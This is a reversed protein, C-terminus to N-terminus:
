TDTMLRTVAESAVGECRTEKGRTARRGKRISSLACSRAWAFAVGHYGTGDDTLCDIVAQCQKPDLGTASGIQTELSSMDEQDKPACCWALSFISLLSALALILAPAWWLVVWECVGDHLGGRPLCRRGFGCPAGGLACGGRQWSINPMSLRVRGVVAKWLPTGAAVDATANGANEPHIKADLPRNISPWENTANPAISAAAAELADSAAASQAFESHAVEVEVGGSASASQTPRAQAAEVESGGSAGTSWAPKAQAEEVELGVGAAQEGEVQEQDIVDAAAFEANANKMKRRRSLAGDVSVELQTGPPEEEGRLAANRLLLSIAVVLSFQGRYKLM